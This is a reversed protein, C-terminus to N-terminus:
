LSLEFPLLNGSYHNTRYDEAGKGFFNAGLHGWFPASEPLADGFVLGQRYGNLFSEVFLRGYGKGRESPLISIWHVEVHSGDATVDACGVVIGNVEYLWLTDHEGWGSAELKERLGSEKELRLESENEKILRYM